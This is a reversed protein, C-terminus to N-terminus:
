ESSVTFIFLRGFPNLPWAVDTNRDTHYLKHQKTLNNNILYICLVWWTDKDNRKNQVVQPKQQMSQEHWRKFGSTVMFASFRQFRFKQNGEETVEKRWRTQQQCYLHCAQLAMSHGQNIPTQLRDSGGVEMQFGDERTHFINTQLCGREANDVGKTQWPGYFTIQSSKTTFNQTTKSSGM